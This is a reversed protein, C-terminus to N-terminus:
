KQEVNDFFIQPGRGFVHGKRDSWPRHSAFTSACEAPARQLSSVGPPLARLVASVGPPLTGSAISFDVIHIRDIKQIETLLM